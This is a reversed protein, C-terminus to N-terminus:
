LGNSEVEAKILLEGTFKIRITVKKKLNKKLPGCKKTCRLMLYQREFNDEQKLDKSLSNRVKM